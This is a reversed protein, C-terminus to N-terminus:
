YNDIAKKITELKVGRYLEYYGIKKPLAFCLDNGVNKKDHQIFQLLQSKTEKSIKIPTYISSVYERIEKNEKATQALLLEKSDLKLKKRRFEVDKM